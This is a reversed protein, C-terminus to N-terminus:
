FDPVSEIDTAPHSVHPLHFIGGRWAAFDRFIEIEDTERAPPFIVNMTALKRILPINREGLPECGAVSISDTGSKQYKM